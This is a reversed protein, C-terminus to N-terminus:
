ARVWIAPWRGRCKHLPRVKNSRKAMHHVRAYNLRANAQHLSIDLMAAFESVTAPLCDLWKLALTM